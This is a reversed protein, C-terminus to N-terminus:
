KPLENKPVKRELLDFLGRVAMIIIIPAFNYLYRSNAEWILLFGSLGAISLGLIFWETKYKKFVSLAIEYWMLPVMFIWLLTQAAKILIWGTVNGESPNLKTWDFYKAIFPNQHHYTYFFDGLDGNFWTYSIKRCLQLIVGPIGQKKLNSVFLKIDGAQKASKNTFSESYALINSDFGGWHNKPAFSMTIWHMLPMNYRNNNKQSFAPETAITLNVVEHMGLFLIVSLPLMIILKKWKKNIILFLVAAVLPIAVTPKIYYGFFIVTGDVIWWLVQKKTSDSKIAYVTFLVGLIAFPLSATDTYLEAGYLYFPLFGFAVLNYMLAMKVNSIKKILLSGAMVSITTFIASIFTALWIKATTNFPAFIHNYLLGFFQNNAYRLFYLRENETMPLNQFSTGHLQSTLNFVEFFDWNHASDPVHIILIFPFAFLAFILVIFSVRYFKIHKENSLSPLFKAIQYLFYIFAASVFICINGLIFATIYKESWKPTQSVTYINIGIVALIFAIWWFISIRKPHALDKILTNM